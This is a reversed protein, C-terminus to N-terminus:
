SRGCTSNMKKILETEKAAATQLAKVASVMGAANGKELAEAGARSHNAMEKWMKSYESVQAKLEPTSIDIGDIVKAHKECANALDKFGAASSGPKIKTIEQAAENVKMVLETCEKQKKVEGCGLLAAVLCAIALSLNRTM